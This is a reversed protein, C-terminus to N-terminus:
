YRKAKFTKGYKEEFIKVFTASNTKAIYKTILFGLKLWGFLVVWPTFHEHVLLNKVNDQFYNGFYEQKYDEIKKVSFKNAHTTKYDSVHLSKNDPSLKWNLFQGFM